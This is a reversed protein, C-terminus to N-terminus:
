LAIIAPRGTPDAFESRRVSLESMLKKSILSFMGSMAKDPVRPLLEIRGDLARNGRDLGNQKQRTSVPRERAHTRMENFEDLSHPPIAFKGWSLHLEKSLLFLLIVNVVRGEGM